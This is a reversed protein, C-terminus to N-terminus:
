AVSPRKEARYNCVFRVRGSADAEVPFPSQLAQVAVYWTGGLMQNRVAVLADHVATARAMAADFTAARATVQFRRREYAIGATGHVLEPSEGAYEMIAVVAAPEPPLGNDFLDVGATGLMAAELYSVIESQLSM